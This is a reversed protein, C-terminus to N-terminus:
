TRQPTALRLTDALAATISTRTWNGDFRWRWARGSHDLDRNQRTTRHKYAEIARGEPRVRYM